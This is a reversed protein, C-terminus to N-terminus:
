PKVEDFWVTSFPIGPVEQLYLKTHWSHIETKEVTYIEGLILRKANNADVGWTLPDPVVFRIKTGKPSHIDISM